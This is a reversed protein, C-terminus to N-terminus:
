RSFGLALNFGEFGLFTLTPAGADTWLQGEYAGRVFVTGARVERQWQLGLQLEGGATVEDVDNLRVIPTTVDPPTLGATITQVRDLTKTGFLLAARFGGVFSLGGAGWPRAFDLSAEPGLGEFERQWSLAQPVPGAISSQSSQRLKAYRLGGGVQGRVRGLAVQQLAEVDLTQIQLSSGARLVDGAFASNIVGPYIVTIAQAGVVTTADATLELPDLAHDFHWYRAQVGLGDASSYGFWVRSSYDYDTQFGLLNQTGSVGDITFAQFSEKLHPKILVAAYGSFWGGSRHQCGTAGCDCGAARSCYCATTVGSPGVVAELDAIQERLQAIQAALDDPAARAPTPPRDEVAASQDAWAAITALLLSTFLLRRTNKLSM